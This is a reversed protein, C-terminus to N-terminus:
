LLALKGLKRIVREAHHLNNRVIRRRYEQGVGVVSSLSLFTQPAYMGWGWGVALGTRLM